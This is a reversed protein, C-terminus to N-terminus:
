CATQNEIKNFNLSMPWRTIMGLRDHGTVTDLKIIGTRDRRSYHCMRGTIEKKRGKYQEESSGPDTLRTKEAGCHLVLFWLLCCEFNKSIVPMPLPTIKRSKTLDM